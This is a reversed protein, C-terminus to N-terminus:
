RSKGNVSYFLIDWPGDAETLFACKQLFCISGYTKGHPEAANVEQGHVWPLGLPPSYLELFEPITYYM